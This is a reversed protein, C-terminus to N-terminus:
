GAGFTRLKSIIEPLMAANDISLQPGFLTPTKSKSIIELADALMTFIEGSSNEISATNTTVKFDTADVSLKLRDKKMISLTKADSDYSITMGDSYRRSAVMDSSESPRFKDSYVGTLVFGGSLEGGPSLVLCSEGISPPAWDITTGASRQFYPLWKTELEGSEVRVLANLYDIEKITGPLIMNAMRRSLELLERSM